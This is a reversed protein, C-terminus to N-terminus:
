PKRVYRDSLKDFGLAAALKKSVPSKGSIVNVIHTVTFGLQAAIQTRSKGYMPAFRERLIRLVDTETYTRM